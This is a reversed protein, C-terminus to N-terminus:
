PYLINRGRTPNERLSQYWKNNDSTWYSATSPRHSGSQETHRDYGWPHMTETQIQIVDAIYVHDAVIVVNDNNNNNNIIDNDNNNNSDSALSLVEPVKEPLTKSQEQEQAQIIIMNDNHENIRIIPEKIPEESQELEEFKRKTLPADGESKERDRKSELAALLFAKEYENHHLRMYDEITEPSVASLWDIGVTGDLLCVSLKEPAMSLPYGKATIKLPNCGHSILLKCIDIDEIPDANKASNTLVICLVTDGSRTTAELDAGWEICKIIAGKNRAIAAALIATKGWKDVADIQALQEKALDYQGSLVLSSFTHTKTKPPHDAM